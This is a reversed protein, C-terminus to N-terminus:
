EISPLTMRLLLLASGHPCPPHPPHPRLRREVTSVTAISDSSVREFLLALGHPCPLHPPRPPPQPHPFYDGVSTLWIVLLKMGLVMHM